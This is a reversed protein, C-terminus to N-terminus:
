GDQALYQVLSTSPFNPKALSMMESLSRTPTADLQSNPLLAPLAGPDKYLQSFLVLYFATVVRLIVRAPIM